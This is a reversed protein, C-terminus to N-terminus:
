DQSPGAAVRDILEIYRILYQPALYEERVQRRAEKGMRVAGEKDELLSTVAAGFEALDEPDDVLLGSKGHEIQDQIGGVRSGVTPREKWMGEAVTLGFGEALSKQVIVDARRQLANVIAANEELDDMPLCALHTRGRSSDPLDGWVKRVEELIEEAEPDDAVSSPSPGALILHADLREPVHDAFGQLVGIPDKLRDWRSVQLVLPAARPVTGEEIMEARNSVRGRSRDQRVFTPEGKREGDLIGAVRLIAVVTDDDMEQNKPSFADICPPIIALKEQDLGEWAYDRRSFVCADAASVYGRLFDWATRALENPADIGVHCNWIVHIGRDRLPETLGATQPDHLVIVDDPEVLRVLEDLNSRLAEEYVRTERAGLEDGDGSEGHLFNHIRKTVDFFDETGGIVAWRARVEAGAMYALVSQLVEAVGGGQATSNVHWLTRGRLLVRARELADLFAEMREPELVEAFWAPELHEVEAEELSSESM